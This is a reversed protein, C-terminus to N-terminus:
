DNIKQFCHSIINHDSDDQNFGPNEMQIKGGGAFVTGAALLLIALVVLIAILKKMQVNGKM